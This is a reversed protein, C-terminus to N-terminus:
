DFPRGDWNMWVKDYFKGYLWGIGFFVAISGFLWWLYIIFSYM